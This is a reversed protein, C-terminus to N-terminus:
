RRAGRPTYSVTSKQGREKEVRERYSPPLLDLDNVEALAKETMTRVDQTTPRYAKVAHEIHAWDITDSGADDAVEAAKRVLSGIEAGTYEDTAAAVKKIQEENLTTELGYQRLIAKFIDARADADPAPVLIKKDFRGPRKLAPDILDPRNTAAVFVIEGQNKPDSMVELMSRFLRSSVGTNDSGERSFGLQDIEDIMVIVPALAKICTIAKEWNRESSGVWKDVIKALNLDCYNIGAIKAIIRAILTKGTGSPGCLLIGAPIRKTNGKRFPHIINKQAFNMIYGLGGIWDESYDELDPADLVEDFEGLLIEKKRDKILEYSLPECMDKARLFIDEIHILKLAATHRAMEPPEVEMVVDNQYNPSEMLHAIYEEREKITPLPIQIAEVRSSPSRLSPHLESLIESILIIPTGISLIEPDKAWRLITTLATRDEPSMTAVDGNPFITAAYDIILGVRPKGPDAEKKLRLLTEILNMATGPDRPLLIEPDLGWIARAESEERPIQKGVGELLEEGDGMEISEQDQQNEYLEPRGDRPFTIGASRDYKVVIDKDLFLPSAILYDELPRSGMILDSVNFYLVFVNAIGANYKRILDNIWM